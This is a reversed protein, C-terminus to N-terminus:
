NGNAYKKLQDRSIRYSGGIKNYKLIGGKIHKRITSEAIGLIEACQKVSLYEKSNTGTPEKQENTKGIVKEAIQNVQEETLKITIDM